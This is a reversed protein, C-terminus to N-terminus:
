EAGRMGRGRGRASCLDAEKRGAVDASSGVSQKPKKPTNEARKKEGMETM